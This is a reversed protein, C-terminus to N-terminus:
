KSHDAIPVRRGLAPARVEARVEAGTEVVPMDTRRALEGLDIVPAAATM